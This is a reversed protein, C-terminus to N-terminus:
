NQLDGSDLIHQDCEQSLSSHSSLKKDQVKSNNFSCSNFLDYPNTNKYVSACVDSLCVTNSDDKINNFNSNEESM